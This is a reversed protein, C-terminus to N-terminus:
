NGKLPNTSDGFILSSGFRGLQVLDSAGTGLNEVFTDGFDRGITDVDTILKTLADPVLQNEFGNGLGKFFRRFEVIDYARKCEFTANCIAYLPTGDEVVEESCQFGYSQCILGTGYFYRGMAVNLTGPGALPLKQGSEASESDGNFETRSLYAQYNLPPVVTASTQSLPMVMAQLTTADDLPNIGAKYALLLFQVSFVPMGSSVYSKISSFASQLVSNGAGPIADMIEQVPQIQGAVQRYKRMTSRLTDGMDKFDQTFDNQGTFSMGGQIFGVTRFKAGPTNSYIRVTSHLNGLIRDLELVINRSVARRIM